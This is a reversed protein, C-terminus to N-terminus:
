ATSGDIDKSEINAGQELLLRVMDQHGMKAAHPLATCGDSDKSEINAGQELLLRVIDEFGRNSGM